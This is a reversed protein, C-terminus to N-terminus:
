RILAIAGLTILMPLLVAAKVAFIRPRSIPATLLLPLTRNTYEHGMSLAGLAASGLLYAIFGARFLFPDSMGGAWAMVVCGVWLPLLARFEKSLDAPILQGSSM